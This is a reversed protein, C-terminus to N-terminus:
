TVRLRARVRLQEDRRNVLGSRPWRRGSRRRVARHVPATPRRGAAHDELHHRVVVPFSYTASLSPVPSCRRVRSIWCSREGRKRPSSRAGRGSRRLAADGTTRRRREGGARRIRSNWLLVTRVIAGPTRTPRRVAVAGLHQDDGLPVAVRHRELAADVEGVERRLDRAVLQPRPQLRIECGLLRQAGLALSQERRNGGGDARDDGLADIPRM